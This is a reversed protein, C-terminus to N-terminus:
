SVVLKIRAKSRAPVVPPPSDPPEDNRVRALWWRQMRLLLERDAQSIANAAFIGCANANRRSRSPKSSEFPSLV